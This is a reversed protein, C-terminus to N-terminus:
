MFIWLDVGVYRHFYYESKVNIFTQFLEDSEEHLCNLVNRKIRLKVIESFLKFFYRSATLEAYKLFVKKIKKNIKKIM